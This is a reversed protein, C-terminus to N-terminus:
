PVLVDMTFMSMSAVRTVRLVVATGKSRERKSYGM